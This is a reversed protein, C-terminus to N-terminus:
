TEEEEPAAEYPYLTCNSYNGNNGGLVRKFIDGQKVPVQASCDNSMNGSSIYASMCRIILVDNIYAEAKQGSGNPSLDNWTGARLFAWGDFPMSGGDAISM